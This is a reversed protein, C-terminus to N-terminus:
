YWRNTWVRFRNIAQQRKNTSLLFPRLQSDIGLLRSALLSRSGQFQTWARPPSTESSGSESSPALVQSYREALIASVGERITLNELDVLPLLCLLGEDSIPHVAIQVAPALHGTRIRSSNWGHSITDMPLLALLYISWLFAWCQKHLVWSIAKQQVICFNVIVFGAVVCAVGVFGIIRMRTMGNFNVYIILRYFVAIVLMANCFSWFGALKQLTAIRPHQHVEPQFLALMAITSMGLAVTLWAAGQHAYTSYIFGMPFERFWTARIEVVLFWVFICSVVILTNRSAAYAIQSCVRKSEILASAESQSSGISSGPLLVGLSWIGVVLVLLTAVFNIQTAWNVLSEVIDTLKHFVSSAMDPHSQILPILFVLGVVLPVGWSLWALRNKSMGNAIREWPLHIWRQVGNLASRFAFRILELRRSHPGEMALAIALLHMIAAVCVLFNPQWVLRMCGLLLGVSLLLVRRYNVSKRRRIESQTLHWVFIIATAVLFVAFGTNGFDQAWLVYAGLMLAITLGIARAYHDFGIPPDQPELIPKRKVNPAALENPFAWQPENTM